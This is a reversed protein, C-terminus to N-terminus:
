SVVKEFGGLTWTIESSKVLTTVTTVTEKYGDATYERSVSDSSSERESEVISPKFIIRMSYPEGVANKLTMVLTGDSRVSYDCRIKLDDANDIAVSAHTMQLAGSHANGNKMSAEIADDTNCSSGFLLQVARATLFSMNWDLDSGLNGVTPYADLTLVAEMDDNDNVITDYKASKSTTKAGETVVTRTIGGFNQETVTYDTTVVETVVRTQEIKVSEGNLESAILYAASSVNYYRQDMQALNSVRGAATSGATIVLSGVVTCILFLLLAFSMSAGTQSRLVSNIKRKM